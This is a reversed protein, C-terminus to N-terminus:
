ELEKIMLEIGERLITQVETKSTCVFECLALDEEAVEYIGLQEMRDIDEVLIAKLLHVPLIDMPLVSEYEGSMVFARPGGHYNTNLTYKKNPFLFSPYTRSHSFKNFGPKAWGMFEYEDGEPIVTIQHDYYGLFNETAIKSGTLVNGSIIRNKKESIKDKILTDICAGIYTRYYRPEKVEPGTLAIIRSADFFGKKFLRGITLVDLASIYWVKEGKNVPDLHHIQVGASGAPHPGKFKNVQVRQAQTFADAPPYEANLNLHVKGSTLKSLANIGTQFDEKNSNWMIFDYDPALPASDFGSVFISKPEDKPNAIVAYPRQLIFPWLGSELLNRIIDQKDMELPNGSQFTEYEIKEDAKVVVELIRRREGRNIAVVTGSVPSTFKIDPNYKNYFLTGGAKVKQDIKVTTKPRIGKFDPPKIAYTDSDPVKNLIKEAKGKLPINLGKKIKIVKSM